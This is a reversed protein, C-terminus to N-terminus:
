SSILMHSFLFVLMVVGAALNARRIRPVTFLQLFRQVTNGNKSIAMKEEQFQSYIACIDRAAQIPSPRLKIMTKYADASRGKKVYWRPGPFFIMTLKGRGRIDPFSESEPCM